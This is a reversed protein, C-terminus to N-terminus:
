TFGPPAQLDVDVVAGSNNRRYEWDPFQTPTEAAAATMQAGRSGSDLRQIAM